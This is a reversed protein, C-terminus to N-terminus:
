FQKRGAEMILIEVFHCIGRNHRPASSQSHRCIAKDDRRHLVRASVDASKGYAARHVIKQHATRLGSVQSGPKDKLLTQRNLHEPPDYRGHRFGRLLRSDTNDGPIGLHDLSLLGPLAGTLLWTEHDIRCPDTKHRVAIHRARVADHCPVFNKDGTRETLVM